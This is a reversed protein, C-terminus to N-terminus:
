RLFWLDRMFRFIVNEKGAHVLMKERKARAILTIGLDNALDLAMGTVGSRSVLVPIRMFAAKMVMESTLRGTTYFIKDEGPINDLWMLGSIVDAANHRGVDEIFLLVESNKCLACGHVSGAERYIVNRKSITKLLESITSIRLRTGSFRYDYLADLTCSFVTGQGCGSTVSRKSLKEHLDVIGRGAFTRVRATEGAWDVEISEIAELSEILRQNRLFGLALAEPHTGLTMLTVVEHGDVTISLPYEAAVFVQRTRGNQDIASEPRTPARGAETMAPRYFNTKKAAGMLQREIPFAAMLVAKGEIQDTPIM